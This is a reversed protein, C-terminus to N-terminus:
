PDAQGNTRSWGDCLCQLSSAGFIEPHLTRLHPTLRDIALSAARLRRGFEAALGAVDLEHYEDGAQPSGSKGSYSPISQSDALQGIRFKM